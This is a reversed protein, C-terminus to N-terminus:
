DGLFVGRLLTIGRDKDVLYADNELIFLGVGDVSVAMSSCTFLSFLLIFLFLYIILFM